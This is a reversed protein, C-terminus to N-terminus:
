KVVKTHPPGTQKEAFRSVFTPAYQLIGLVGAAFLLNKHAGGLIIGSIGCGEAMAMGVIFIPLAKTIEEIRPLVVWRIVTSILLPPLGVLLGLPLGSTQNATAQEPQGLVVYMTTLGSLLAIWLAWFIVPKPPTQHTSM